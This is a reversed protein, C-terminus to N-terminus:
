NPDIRTGPWYRQMEIFLFSASWTVLVLGTLAELGTLYRAYGHVVLDGYGVTTFTVFSLYACDMLGGHALNEGILKGMGPMNLTYYYGLAFVWIEVVHAIFIVCVSLLVRFRRALHLKDAMQRALHYLVEYHLFIAFLVLVANISSVTIFQTM